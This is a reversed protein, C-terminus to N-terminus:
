QIGGEGHELYKKYYRFADLSIQHETKTAESVINETGHLRIFYLENKILTQLVAITKDRVAEKKGSPQGLSISSEQRREGERDAPLEQLALEESLIKKEPQEELIETIRKIVQTLTMDIVDDQNEALANFHCKKHRWSFDFRGISCGFCPSFKQELCERLGALNNCHLMERERGDLLRGYFEMVYFDATKLREKEVLVIKGAEGIPEPKAEPVPLRGEERGERQSLGSVAVEGDMTLEMQGTLQASGREEEIRKAYDVVETYSLEGKELYRGYLEDQEEKRLKSLQYAASFALKNKGLETQFPEALRNSVAEMEAIKTKSVNLMSAVIDRLKGSQLDYGNLKLNHEKMYQLEKKLTQEERILTAIDKERSSNALILEIMEEHENAPSRIQCTVTEFEGHGREVLLRLARWRREGSILRYPTGDGAPADAVVLNSLLGVALIESAKEKIGEQAYFNRDSSYIDYVSVDKTRFRARSTKELGEASRRNLSDLITYAM